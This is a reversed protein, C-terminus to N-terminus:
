YIKTAETSTMSSSPTETFPIVTLTSSTTTGHAYPSSEIIAPGSAWEPIPDSTIYSWPSVGAPSVVWVRSENM